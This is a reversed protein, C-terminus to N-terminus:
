EDEVSTNHILKGILRELVLASETFDITEGDQLFEIDGGIQLALMKDGLIGATIISAGTDIPYDLSADVQLEVRARFDEDLTIDVVEGVKVGAIQVQSRRSLGGIEDFHAFFTVKPAGGVELGGV